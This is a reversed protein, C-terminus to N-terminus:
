AASPLAYNIVTISPCSLSSFDNDHTLLPADLLLATAAMWGDSSELRRGVQRAERMIQVWCRMLAENYEQILVDAFFRELRTLRAEGWQALSAGLRMEAVAQFPLVSLGSQLHPRYLELTPRQDVVMSGISTDLVCFNM